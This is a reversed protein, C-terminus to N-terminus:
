IPYKVPLYPRYAGLAEELVPVSDKQTIKKHRARTGLTQAVQLPLSDDGVAVARIWHTHRQHNIAIAKQFRNEQWHVRVQHNTAGFLEMM